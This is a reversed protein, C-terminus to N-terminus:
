LQYYADQYEEPLDNYIKEARETLANYDEVIREAERYHFLSYTEPSLLEPKRRGNYKTYLTLIDAIEAAHQRGFQAEAWLKKYEPLREAPWKEPNWAYDLFFTIPFEMPKIDGVNVIWVEDANYEYAL